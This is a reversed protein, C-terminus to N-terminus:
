EDMVLIYVGQYRSLIYLNGAGDEGFSTISLNSDVLLEHYTVSQGDYRMGWIKGSCFDGYLYSGVLSPIAQGRYVYGGTVSCGDSHDYEIVPLELGVTDCDLGPSFCHAGEMVNWGYNLGPEVLDIEEWLQQGVDAVWLRGTEDFSFRWPNRFGYAWVEERAGAVGVFPNDPPILYATGDPLGTVDLRLITGLLTGFNQGNLFPDGGMGGDGLGVYLYGDPGFALQGGNHNSAPQPIEMIVLESDPDAVGPDTRSLSFRSLVSRRPGAASYYVYRYGSASYGPDFALGLLGEELAADEVRDTIDLFVAAETADPDSPLLLISGSQETVFIRDLGDDPQALNTLRQFVLQPYVRQLGLTM